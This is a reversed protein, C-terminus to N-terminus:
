RGDAIRVRDQHQLAPPDHLLTVVGLEEGSAAEVEIEVVALEHGGEGLGASGSRSGVIVPRAALERRADRKRDGDGAVRRRVDQAIEGLEPGVVRGDGLRETM